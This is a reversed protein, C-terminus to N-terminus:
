CTETKVYGPRFECHPYAQLLAAIEGKFSRKLDFINKGGDNKPIFHDIWVMRYLPDLITAIVYLSEDFPQSGNGKGELLSCNVFIGLFRRKLSQHLSTVIARCWKADM